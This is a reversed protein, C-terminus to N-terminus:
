TEPCQGDDQKYKFFAVNRLNTPVSEISQGWSLLNQMFVSISELRQFTENQFIFLVINNSLVSRHIIDLFM